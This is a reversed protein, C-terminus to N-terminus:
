RGNASYFSRSRSGLLYWFNVALWCMWLAAVMASWWLAAWWAESDYQKGDTFAAMSSLDKVDLVFVIVLVILLATRAYRRGAWALWASALLVVFLVFLYPARQVDDPAWSHPATSQFFPAWNYIGLVAYITHCAVLVSLGVPRRRKTISLPSHNDSFIM